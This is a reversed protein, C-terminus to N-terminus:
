LEDWRQADRLVTLPCGLELLSLKAGGTEVRFCVCLCFIERLWRPRFGISHPFWDFARIAKFNM